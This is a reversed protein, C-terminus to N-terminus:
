YDIRFDLSETWFSSINKKNRLLFMHQPYENSTGERPVELSYGCRINKNFFLFIIM